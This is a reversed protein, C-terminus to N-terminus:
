MGPRRAARPTRIGYAAAVALPRSPPQREGALLL